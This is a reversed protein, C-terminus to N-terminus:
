AALILMLRIPLVERLKLCKIRRTITCKRTTSNCVSSPQLLQQVNRKPVDAFEFGFNNGSIEVEMQFPYKSSPDFGLTRSCTSRLTVEIKSSNKVVPVVLQQQIEVTSKKVIDSCRQEQDQYNRVFNANSTEYFKRWIQFFAFM